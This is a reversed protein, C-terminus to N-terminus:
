SNNWKRFACGLAGLGGLLSMALTSPEPVPAVSISGSYSTGIAPGASLQQLTLGGAAFQFSLDVEGPQNATLYKLDPNSGGYVVDTLNIEVQSNIFGGARGYTSVDFFQVTGQLYGTGDSIYLTSTSLPSVTADQFLGNVTIAGYNFPGGSFAGDLNVASGTAASGGESSIFWQDAISGSPGIGVSPSAPSFNFSDGSFVIQSGSLPGLNLILGSQAFSTAASGAVITLALIGLNSNKM